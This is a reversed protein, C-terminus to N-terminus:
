TEDVSNILYNIAVTALNLHRCKSRKLGNDLPSLGFMRNIFGFM